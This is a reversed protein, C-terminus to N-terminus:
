DEDKDILKEIVEKIDHILGDEHEFEAEAPGQSLSLLRNHELYPDEHQATRKHTLFAETEFGRGRRASTSYALLAASLLAKSFMM